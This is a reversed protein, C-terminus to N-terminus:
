HFIATLFSAAKPAIASLVLATNVLVLTRFKELNSVRVAMSETQKTLGELAAEIRGLSRQIDAAIDVDGM